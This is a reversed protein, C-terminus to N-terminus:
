PLLHHAALHPAKGGGGGKSCRPNEAGMGSFPNGAGSYREEGDAEPQSYAEEEFMDPTHMSILITYYILTVVIILIVLSIIMENLQKLFDLQFVYFSIDINFLPDKIDFGTANAFQLIEFWLASVAYFSTFAGFIVSIVTTYRNLKKMDTAEHSAIKAFYGKKLRRLYVNMLVTIVIFAPIGVTLETTLQKLFVSVYGLEKFWLWDTIFNILLLFLAVIIVIFMLIVGLSRQGKSKGKKM